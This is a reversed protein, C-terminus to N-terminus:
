NTPCLLQSATEFRFGRDLIAPITEELAKLTQTIDPKPMLQRGDHLCFIAGNSAGYILRSAIATSRLKWDLGITSWMVGMLSLHEQMERFGFWRIGYPARMLRPKTALANEIAHQATAFEWEIQERGHFYLHPHTHSHNGIEHGALRVSRAVSPLRAVNAGCVFFTAVVQYKALIELVAETSESPGDDFTLAISKRDTAGRSVSPAFITSSPGRVAYAMLAVAGGVSGAFAEALV